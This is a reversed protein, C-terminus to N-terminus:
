KSNRMEIDLTELWRSDKSYSDINQSYFNYQDSNLFDNLFDDYLDDLELEYITYLFQLYPEIKVILSNDKYFKNYKVEFEKLIKDKKESKSKKFFSIYHNSTTYRPNYPPLNIKYYRGVEIQKFKSLLKKDNNILQTKHMEVQTELRKYENKYESSDKLRALISIVYKSLIYSKTYDKNTLCNMFNKLNSSKLSFIIDYTSLTTSLKLSSSVIYSDRPKVRITKSYNLDSSIIWDLFMKPTLKCLESDYIKGSHEDDAQDIENHTIHDGKQYPNVESFFDFLKIMEKKFNCKMYSHVLFRFMDTGSHLITELYGGAKVSYNFVTKINRKEPGDDIRITTMGFDIITPICQSTIDYTANDLNVSYNYDKELKRCLVNSAHLDYHCFGIERQGVELAILLQIFIGLWQEFTIRNKKLLRSISYGKVEEIAMFPYIDQNTDCLIVNKGDKTDDKRVSCSFIGLTYMYNPVIHRLKNIAYMGIFYERIMNNYDYQLSEPDPKFTKMLVNIDKTLISSFYVFGYESDTDMKSVEILWEKVKKKLNFDYIYDTENTQLFLNDIFCCVAQMEDGSTFNNRLINKIVPPSVKKISYKEDFHNEISCVKNEQIYHKIFSTQEKIEDKTPM